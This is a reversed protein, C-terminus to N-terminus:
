FICIDNVLMLIFDLKDDVNSFSECDIFCGVYACTMYDLQSLLSCTWYHLVPKLHPGGNRYKTILGSLLCNSYNHWFVINEKAKIM